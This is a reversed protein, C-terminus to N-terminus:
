INDLKRAEQLRAVEAARAVKQQHQGEAYKCAWGRCACAYAEGSPDMAVPTTTVTIGPAITLAITGGTRGEMNPMILPPEPEPEGPHLFLQGAANRVDKDRHTNHVYNIIDELDDGVAQMAEESEMMAKLVQCTAVPYITKFFFDPIEVTHIHQAAHQVANRGQIWWKKSM